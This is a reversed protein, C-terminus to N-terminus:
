GGDKSYFLGKKLSISLFIFAAALFVPIIFLISHISYTISIYSGIVPALGWGICGTLGYIGFLMGRKEAPTCESTISMIVPEIGGISFMFLGYILTFVLLGKFFVMSASVLIGATLSIMLIRHRDYRDGLRGLLISSVATMLAAFGSILGTIRSSGEITGRTFQVFLSIYPAFAIRAMRMFLLMILMIVVTLSLVSMFSAQVGTKQRDTSRISKREKVILLVVLFVALMVAAGLWFSIRYGLSEAMIGGVAPGASFGIFTSSSLFGLSYSLRGDPTDSAVFASAATITGTFFGQMIRFLIVHWVETSLALGSLVIAGFFLARLMMLKKGYRDALMGWVPAMIGMSFAPVANVIGTYLKIKEPDTVGLEQIYYPLFPLGLGFSM